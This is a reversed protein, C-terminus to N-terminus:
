LTYIEGVFYTGDARISVSSKNLHFICVYSIRYSSVFYGTFFRTCFWVDTGSKKIYKWELSAKAENQQM